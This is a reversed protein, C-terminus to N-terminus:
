WQMVENVRTRTKKVTQGSLVYSQKKIVVFSWHLKKISFKFKM